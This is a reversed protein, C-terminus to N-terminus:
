FDGYLICLLTYGVLVASFHLGAVLYMYVLLPTNSTPPPPLSPSRYIVDMITNICPSEERSQIFLTIYQNSNTLFLLPYFPILLLLSSPFPSHLTLPDSSVRKYYALRKGKLTFWRRKWGGVNHPDKKKLYGVKDYGQLSSTNYYKCTCMCTCSKLCSLTCYLISM